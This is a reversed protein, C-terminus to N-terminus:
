SAEIITKLEANSYYWIEYEKGPGVNGYTPPNDTSYIKICFLDGHNFEDLRLHTLLPSGEVVAIGSIVENFDKEIDMMLFSHDPDRENLRFTIDYTNGSLSVSMNTWPSAIAPLKLPM